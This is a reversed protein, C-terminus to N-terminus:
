TSTCAANDGGQPWLFVNCAYCIIMKFNFLTEMKLGQRMVNIKQHLFKIKMECKNQTYNGRVQTLAFM